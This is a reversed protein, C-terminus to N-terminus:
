SKSLTMLMGNLRQVFGAPDKLSGGEALVAQDLLLSAWEGFQAEDSESNMRELVPHTPNIELTPKSDPLDHGAQKMLQQMHLAMDQEKLVLCSPSTTLRHSVKVEEVQDGLATTIRELLDKAREETAEQVEKDAPTEIEDLDLAGKAVSVLKKGAYEQIFSMMWEDVRDSMLLVEIEKKRLLELHPSNKAAAFSDATIYYVKEQGEKMREIYADLSVSQKEADDKTSSFRLLSAIEERNAFDEGPGEKIVQGFQDWFSQYLEPEKKATKKLMGLVKKVSGTRISDIVKNSQLIERSVNLPLDSSDVLGRVFRLYRPMLKDADDMIFVRQVFLKIGNTTDREWLDFPAKSPIYLLSTYELKGEVRSHSWLLPEEFDHSVHKYFAKYEDDSIENKSRTWLASADNITEDKPEEAEEGEAALAPESLMVVPFTIHDSYKKIISRLRWGDAFESSEERLHLVVETGRSDREVAELTYEGNGTSDWCVAETTGARRTTLTVRDAVVFASYFGVGFQGIMNADKAQDGSLSELFKQTGSNAITGINAIVEDRSMGIGNDSLTVTNAEKDFAIRIKLESDSEMLAGDTLAEFRLKDCADSANSILERLFIEQNSYLSHIMLKLLQNVETQFKHTEKAPTATSM